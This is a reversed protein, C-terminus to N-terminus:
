AIYFFMLLLPNILRFITNIANATKSKTNGFNISFILFIITVIFSSIITMLIILSNGYSLVYSSNKLIYALFYHQLIFTIKWLCLMFVLALFDLSNFQFGSGASVLMMSGSTIVVMCISALLTDAILNGSIYVVPTINKAKLYFRLGSNREQSIILGYFSCIFLISLIILNLLIYFAKDSVFLSKAVRSGRLFYCLVLPCGVYTLISFFQVPNSALIAFRRQIVFTLRTRLSFKKYRRSGLTSDKLKKTEDLM